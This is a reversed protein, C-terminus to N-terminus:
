RPPTKPIKKHKEPPSFEVELDKQDEVKSEEAKSDDNQDITANVVLNEKLSPDM